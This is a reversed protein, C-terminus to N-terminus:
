QPVKKGNAVFAALKAQFEDTEYINKTEATSSYKDIHQGGQLLVFANWFRQHVHPIQAIPMYIDGHKLMFDFVAYSTLVFSVYSTALASVFFLLPTNSPRFEYMFAGGEFNSSSFSTPTVPVHGQYNMPHQFKDAFTSNPTDRTYAWKTFLPSQKGFYPHEAPPHIESFARKPTFLKSTPLKVVAAKRAVQTLRCFM